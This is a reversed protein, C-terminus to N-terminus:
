NSKKIFNSERFRIRGGNKYWLVGAISAAFLMGSWFWSFGHNEVVKEVKTRGPVPVYIIKEKEKKHKTRKRKRKKQEYLKQQIKQQEKQERDKVLIELIDYYHSM